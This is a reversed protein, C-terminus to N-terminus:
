RLWQSTRRQLVSYLVMVTAVVLIMALALAEVL